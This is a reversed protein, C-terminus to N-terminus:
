RQATDGILPPEGRVTASPSSTQTTSRPRDCFPAVPGEEEAGAEGGARFARSRPVTMYRERSTGRIMGARPRIPAGSRRDDVIPVINPTFSSPEGQDAIAV